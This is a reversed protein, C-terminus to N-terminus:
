SAKREVTEGREARDHAHHARGRVVDLFVEELTDRGYTAILSSPTGDEIIRGQHLLIVRSALREVEAMNHSAFLLTAGRSEAYQKLKHRVWDATDPDLSATPEDLLLLEPANLLAKSLGVRTKQGASLKGTPRDLLPAIQLDEAIYAIREAANAIGYLGAYVTLNQRVTLRMPLDVYPSQFNMRYAVASRNRSMDAGFVSVEGSTPVVLGLLMAITTTKGAGNGGLLAVTTAPALTFSIRDVATVAGYIKTLDRVM